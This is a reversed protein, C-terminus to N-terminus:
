PVMGSIAKLLTTKGAGNAGLVAVVEGPNVRLTAGRLARIGGYSVHVDTVSLM